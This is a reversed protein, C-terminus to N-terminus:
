QLIKRELWFLRCELICQVSCYRVMGKIKLYSLCRTRTLPPRVPVKVCHPYPLRLYRGGGGGGRRRRRRAAVEFIRRDRYLLGIGSGGESRMTVPVIKGM